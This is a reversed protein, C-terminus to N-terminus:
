FCPSAQVRSLAATKFSLSNALHKPFLDHQRVRFGEELDWPKVRPRMDRPSLGSSMSPHSADSCFMCSCMHPLASTSLATWASM